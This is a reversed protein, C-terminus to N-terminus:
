ISESAEKGVQQQEYSSENMAKYYIKTLMTLPQGMM